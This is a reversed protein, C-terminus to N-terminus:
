ETAGWLSTPEGALDYRCFDRAFLLTVSKRFPVCCQQSPGRPKLSRNVWLHRTWVEPMLSSISALESDSWASKDILLSQRRPKFQEILGPVQPILDFVDTVASWRQSGHFADRNM